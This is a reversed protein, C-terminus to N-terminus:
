DARALALLKTVTAWNRTTVRPGLKGASAFVQSRSVGDPSWVYLERGDAAVREAGLDRALLEQVRDAPPESEFFSVVYRKPDTAVDGLPDHEVIRELEALTRVIVPVAFGFREGIAEEMRQAAKDPALATTAVVNGSQLLTAVDEFGREGLLGRLDAMGVRRKGALNIGQLLAVLQTM